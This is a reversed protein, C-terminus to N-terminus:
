LSSLLCVEYQQSLQSPSALCDLLHRQFADLLSVTGLSSYGAYLDEDTYVDAEGEGEFSDDSGKGKRVVVVSQGGSAAAADAVRSRVAKPPHKKSASTKRGGAKAPLPPPSSAPGPASGSPSAASGTTGAQSPSASALSGTAATLPVNGYLPGDTVDAPAPTPREAAGVNGYVHIQSDTEAPTSASLAGTLQTLVM